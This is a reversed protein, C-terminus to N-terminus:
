YSVESNIIIHVYLYKITKFDNNMKRKLYISTLSQFSAVFYFPDIQQSSDL